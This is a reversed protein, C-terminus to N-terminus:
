CLALSPRSGNSKFESKFSADPYIGLSASLFSGLNELANDTSTCGSVIFFCAFAIPSPLIARSPRGGSRLGPFDVVFFFDLGLLSKPLPM